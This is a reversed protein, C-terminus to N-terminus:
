LLDSDRRTFVDVRHGMTGLRRALEAVYVNQGGSDEGGLTALPSAHESIMALHM